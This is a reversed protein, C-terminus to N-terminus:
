IKNSLYKKKFQYQDIQKEIYKKTISAQSILNDDIPLPIDPNNEYDEFLIHLVNNNLEISNLQEYKLEKWIPKKRLTTILACRKQSAILWLYPTGSDPKYLTPLLIGYERALESDVLSLKELYNKTRVTRM